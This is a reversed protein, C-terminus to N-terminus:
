DKDRTKAHTVTESHHSKKQQDLIQSLLNKIHNMDTKLEDIDRKVANMTEDTRDSQVMQKQNKDKQTLKTFKDSIFKMFNITREVEVDRNEREEELSKQIENRNEREQELSKQLENRNLKDRKGINDM